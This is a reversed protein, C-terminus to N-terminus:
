KMDHAQGGARVAEAVKSRAKNEAYKRVHEIYRAKDPLTRRVSPVATTMHHLWRHFPELDRDEEDQGEEEGEGDGDGGGADFAAGKRWRRAGPIRFDPGRYHELVYYRYAHPLLAFDVISPGTGGWCFPSLSATAAATPTAAAAAAAAQQREGMRKSFARLNQLLGDFHERREADSERVLVSYYPSCLQKNVLQAEARQKAREWPDQSLLLTPPPLGSPEGGGRTAVSGDNAFGTDSFADGALAASAAAEALAAAAVDNCYEICVLSEYVSRRRAVAAAAAGAGAATGAPQEILVPVTGLPNSAKLEDTKFHLFESKEEYWGLAEVWDYSLQLHELALHTRHAFPCFWATLFRLPPPKTTM